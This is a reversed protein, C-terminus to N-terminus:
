FFRKKEGKGRKKKLAQYTQPICRKAKYSKDKLTREKNRAEQPMQYKCKPKHSPPLSLFFFSFNITPNFNSHRHLVSTTFCPEKYVNRYNHQKHSKGTHHRSKSQPKHRHAKDIKFNKGLRSGKFILFVRTFQYNSM